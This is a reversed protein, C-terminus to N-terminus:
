HMWTRLWDIALSNARSLDAGGFIHTAGPFSVFQVHAGDSQLAQVTAATWEAPIEPDSTGQMILAPPTEPSYWPRPSMLAYAAPDATPDPVGGTGGPTHVWWKNANDAMDSSVPAYLVAARLGPDAAMLIEAVGGGNSHGAVAVRTPDAQPLTPLESILDLDSIAEAVISPVGTAGPGSGLYGPYSPSITLFGASAMPDAYPATDLGEYYQSVPAYGHNVLVVPFRGAGSPIDLVGTMTGGDSMWSVHYKAYGPGSAIADGVTIRGTARPRERLTEIAYAPLAAAASSPTATVARSPAPTRPAAVQATPPAACAAAALAAFSAVVPWSIRAM